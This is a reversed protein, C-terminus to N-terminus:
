SHRNVFMEKDLYPMEHRVKTREITKQKEAYPVTFNRKVVPQQIWPNYVERM